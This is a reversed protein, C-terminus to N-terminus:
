EVVPMGEEARPKYIFTAIAITFVLAAYCIWADIGFDTRDWLSMIYFALALLGTAISILILKLVLESAITPSLKRHALRYVMIAPFSLVTYVILCVFYVALLGATDGARIGFFIVM